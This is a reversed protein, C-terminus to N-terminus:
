LIIELLVIVLGVKEQKINAPYIKQKLKESDWKKLYIWWIIPNKFHYGYYDKNSGFNTWKCKNYNNEM